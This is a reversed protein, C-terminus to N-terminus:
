RRPPWGRRSSRRREAASTAPRSRGGRGVVGLVVFLVVLMATPSATAAALWPRALLAVVGAAAVGAVVARDAPAPSLAATM